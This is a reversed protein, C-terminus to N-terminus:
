QCTGWGFCGDGCNPFSKGPAHAELWKQRDAGPEAIHCVYVSSTVTVVSLGDLTLLAPCDEIRLDSLTKLKPATLKTLAHCHSVQLKHASELVPLDLSTVALGDFFLVTPVQTLKSLPPMVTLAPMSSLTLNAVSQLNGFAAISTLQAGGTLSLSSLKTVGGFGKITVAAFNNFGIQDVSTLAAPGTQTSAQSNISLSSVKTLSPFAGGFEITGAVSLSGNIVTVKKLLALTAADTNDDVFVSGTITCQGEYPNASQSASPIDGTYTGSCSGSSSAANPVSKSLTPTDLEPPLLCGCLSVALLAPL